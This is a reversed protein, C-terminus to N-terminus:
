ADCKSRERFEEIQEIALIGTVVVNAIDGGKGGGDVTKRVGRGEAEVGGARLGRRDGAEILEADGSASEAVEETGASRNADGERDLEAHFEAELKRRENNVTNTGQLSNLPGRPPTGFGAFSICHKINHPNIQASFNTTVSPRSRRYVIKSNYM